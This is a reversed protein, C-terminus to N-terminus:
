YVFWEQRRTATIILKDKTALKYVKDLVANKSSRLSFHSSQITPTVHGALATRQSGDMRRSLPIHALSNM